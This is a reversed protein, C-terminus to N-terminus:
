EDGHVKVRPHRKKWAEFAEEKNKGKVDDKTANPGVTEKMNYIRKAQDSFEHHFVQDENSKSEKEIEGGALINGTVLVPNVEVVQVEVPITQGDHVLNDFEETKLEERAVLVLRFPNEELRADILNLKQRVQWGNLQLYNLIAKKLSEQNVEQSKKKRGM